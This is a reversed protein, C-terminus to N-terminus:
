KKFQSFFAQFWNQKCQPHNDIGPVKFSQAKKANIDANIAAHKADTVNCDMFTGLFNDRVFQGEQVLFEGDAQKSLRVGCGEMRNDNWDGRYITGGNWVYVGHGHMAGFRFEGEYSFVISTSQLSVCRDGNPHTMIGVGHCLTSETQGDYRSGDPWELAEWKFESSKM